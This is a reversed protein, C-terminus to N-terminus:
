DCQGVIINGCKITNTLGGKEVRVLKGKVVEQYITGDCNEIRKLKGTWASFVRVRSNHHRM